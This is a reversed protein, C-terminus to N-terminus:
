VAIRSFKITNTIKNISNNQTKDDHGIDFRFLIVSNNENNFKIQKLNARDHIFNLWINWKSDYNKTKM